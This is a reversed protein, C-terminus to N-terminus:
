GGYNEEGAVLIKFAVAGVLVAAITFAVPHGYQQVLGMAISGTLAAVMLLPIIVRDFM